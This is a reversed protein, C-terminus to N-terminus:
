KILGEKLAAMMFTENLGPGLPEGTEVEVVGLSPGSVHIPGQEFSVLLSHLLGAGFAAFLVALDESKAAALLPKVREFAEEDLVWEHRSGSSFSTTAADVWNRLTAVWEDCLVKDSSAM